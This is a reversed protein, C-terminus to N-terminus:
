SPIIIELAESLNVLDDALKCDVDCLEDVPTCLHLLQCWVISCGEELWEVATKYRDMLIAAAAAESVIGSLSESALDKHQASITQGLWAICPLLALTASYGDMCTSSSAIDLM